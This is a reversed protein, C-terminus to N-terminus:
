LKDSKRKNDQWILRYIKNEGAREPNERDLHWYLPNNMIYDGIHAFEDDNRIIREYYNRQWKFQSIYPNSKDFGKKRILFTTKAKYFRIIKGLTTQNLMMPNNEIYPSSKDLGSEGLGSKYIESEECSPTNPVIFQAGVILIGHVHNPMIVFEDLEVVPFHKPIDNWCMELIKGYANLVMEGEVIKGFVCKHKHTCITVFYAGEDSYDYGWLRISCRNHIKLDYKQM